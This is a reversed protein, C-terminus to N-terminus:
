VKSESFNPPNPVSDQKRPYDVKDRGAADVEPDKQGRGKPVTTKNTPWRM